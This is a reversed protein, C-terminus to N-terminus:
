EKCLITGVDTLSTGGVNAGQNDFLNIERANQVEPISIFFENRDTFMEGTIETEQAEQVDSFIINNNFTSELAIDGTEGTVKYSFADALSGGACGSTKEKNVVELSFRSKLDDFNIVKGKSILYKTPTNVKANRGLLYSYRKPNSYVIQVKGKETKGPSMTMLSFRWDETETLYFGALASFTATAKMISFADKTLSMRKNLSGDLCFEFVQIDLGESRGLTHAKKITKSNNTNTPRIDRKFDNLFSSELFEFLDDRKYASNLQM